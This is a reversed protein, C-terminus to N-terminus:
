FVIANNHTTNKIRGETWAIEELVSLLPLSSKAGARSLPKQIWTMPLPAICFSTAKGYRILYPFLPVSSIAAGNIAIEAIGADESIKTFIPSKFQFVKLSMIMMELLPDGSLGPLSSGPEDYLM